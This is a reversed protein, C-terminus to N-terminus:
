RLRTVRHSKRDPTLMLFSGLAAHKITVSSGPRLLADSDNFTWTQGNELSVNINGFRDYSVQTVVARISDPSAFPQEHRSLGFAKTEATPTQAGSATPAAPATSGGSSASSGAAAAPMAPTVDPSPPVTAPAAVGRSAAAPPSPAASSPPAAAAAASNVPAAPVSSTAPAATSSSAAAPPTSSSTGRTAKRKALDDYCALREDAASMRACHEIDLASVNPQDAGAPLALLVFTAFALAAFRDDRISRARARLQIIM